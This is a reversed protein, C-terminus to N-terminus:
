SRAEVVDKQPIESPKHRLFKPRLKKFFEITRLNFKKILEQRKYIKIRKKRNIHCISFYIMYLLPNRKWNEDSHLISLLAFLSIMKKTRGIPISGWFLPEIVPRIKKDLSEYYGDVAWRQSIQDDVEKIDMRERPLNTLHGNHIIMPTSVPNEKLIFDEKRSTLFAEKISSIDLLKPEYKETRHRVIGYSKLMVIDAVRVSEFSFIIKAYNDPSYQVPIQLREFPSVVRDVKPPVISIEVQGFPEITISTSLDANPQDDRWAIGILRISFPSKSSIIVKNGSRKISIGREYKTTSYGYDRSVTVSWNSKYSVDLLEIFTSTYDKLVGIYERNSTTRVFVKTGILKDILSDYTAETVYTIVEQGAKEVEAGYERPGVNFQGKARSFVLTFAETAVRRMENVINRIKRKLRLNIGPHYVRRVEEDRQMKEKDTLLDHYRVLAHLSSMEDKRLIYSVTENDNESGKEAIVEIGEPEVRLRGRYRTGNTQEITILQGTLSKLIKDRRVMAMISTFITLATVISISFAFTHKRFSEWIKIFISPNKRIPDAPQAQAMVENLLGLFQSLLSIILIVFITKRLM